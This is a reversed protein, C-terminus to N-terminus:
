PADHNPVFLRMPLEEFTLHRTEAHGGFSVFNTKGDHRRDNAKIMRGGKPQGYRSFTTHSDSHMDSFGIDFRRSCEVIFALDAPAAGRIDDLRVASPNKGGGIGSRDNYLKQYDFGSSRINYAYAEWDFNNVAYDLGDESGELSPCTFFPYEKVWTNIYAKDKIQAWTLPDALYSSFSTAWFLGWKAGDYDSRPVWGDHDTAYIHAAKAISNMQAACKMSMALKKAKAISPLLISVLLAIIAIVVLLEILTFGRRRTANFSSLTM